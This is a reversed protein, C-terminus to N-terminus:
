KREIFIKILSHYHGILPFAWFTVIGVVICIGYGGCTRTPTLNEIHLVSLKGCNGAGM